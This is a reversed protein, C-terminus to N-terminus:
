SPMSARFRVFQVSAAGGESDPDFEVPRDGLELQLTTADEWVVPLEMTTGDERLLEARFGDGLGWSQSWVRKRQPFVFRGNFSRPSAPDEIGEEPKYPYVWDGPTVKRGLYKRPDEIEVTITEAPHNIQELRYAALAAAAAKTDATSDEVIRERVIGEPLDEAVATAEVVYRKGTRTERDVGVITLHTVLESADTNKVPPTITLGDNEAFVADARDEFVQQPLGWSLLGAKVLSPDPDVRYERVPLVAGKRSLHDLAARNTMRKITLDYELPDSGHITGEGIPLPDGTRADTLLGRVVEQATTPPEDIRKIEVSDVIWGTGMREVVPYVSIRETGEPCTVTQELLSWFGGTTEPSITEIWRSSTDKDRCIVDEIWFSDGEIDYGWYSLIAHTTGSPPTFEWRWWMQQNLTTGLPPSEEYTVAGNSDAYHVKVRLEGIQFDVGTRLLTLVEYTRGPIVEFNQAQVVACFNGRIRTLKPIVANWRGGTQDKVVMMYGLALTDQPITFDEFHHKWPGVGPGEPRIEHMEHEVPAVAPFGVPYFPLSLTFVGDTGSTAKVHVEAIWQENPQVLVADTGFDAPSVDASLWKLPPSGPGETKVSVHGYLMDGTDLEWVSGATGDPTWNDPPNGAGTPTGFTNIPPEKRTTPGIRLAKQGPNHPDDEVDIDLPFESTNSWGSMDGTEFDHFAILNPNKFRGGLAARLRVRGIITGPSRKVWARVRYVDGPRAEWNQSSPLPDDDPANYYTIAAGVGSRAADGTDFQWTSDEAPEWYLDNGGEFDNGLEFDGNDLKNKGSCHRADRVLPGTEGDGEHWLATHGGVTFSDGAEGRRLIPLTELLEEGWWLLIHRLPALTGDPRRVLPPCLEDYVEQAWEVPLEWDGLGMHVQTLSAM